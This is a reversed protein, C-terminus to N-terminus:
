KVEKKIDAINFKAYMNSKTSIQSHIDYNVGNHWRVKQLDARNSVAVMKFKTCIQLKNADIQEPKHSKQRKLIM